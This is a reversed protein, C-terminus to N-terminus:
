QHQLYVLLRIEFMTGDEQLVIAQSIVNSGELLSKQRATSLLVAAETM